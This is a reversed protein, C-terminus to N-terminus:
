QTFKVLVQKSGQVEVGMSGFGSHAKSYTLIYRGHRIVDLKFEGKENTRTQFTPGMTDACFAIVLVDAIPKDVASHVMGYISGSDIKIKSFASREANLGDVRESSSWGFVRAFL